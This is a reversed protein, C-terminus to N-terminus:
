GGGRAARRRKLELLRLRDAADQERYTEESAILMDLGTCPIEIGDIELYLASAAAEDFTVKWAHTSVDVEVEDAVKVM